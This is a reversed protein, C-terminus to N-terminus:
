IRKKSIRQPTAKSCVEHETNAEAVATAKIYVVGDELLYMSGEHEIENRLEQLLRNVLSKQYYQGEDNINSWNLDKALAYVFNVVFQNNQTLTALLNQAGEGYILRNAITALGFEWMPQEHDFKPDLDFMRILNSLETAMMEITKTKALTRSSIRYNHDDYLDAPLKEDDELGIANHTYKFKEDHSRQYQEFRKAMEADTAEEVFMWGQGLAKLFDRKDEDSLDNTWVIHHEWNDIVARLHTRITAWMKEDIVLARILPVKDDSKAAEAYPIYHHRMPGYQADILIEGSQDFYVYTKTMRTTDGWIIDTWIRGEYQKTIIQGIMEASVVAYLGLLTYFNYRIKGDRVVRAMLLNKRIDIM